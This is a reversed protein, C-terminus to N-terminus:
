NRESRMKRRPARHCHNRGSGAHLRYARGTAVVAKGAFSADAFGRAGSATITVARSDRQRAIWGLALCRNALAAGLRGAIHPRRESWDLCPRCFVRKGAAPEAGFDHLFALGRETVEGGDHALTVHGADTLADALAVGLRGALHDYCTRATRLAEGGRWTGPRPEPGAVAMVSELMQGVLPSALRFYRHRGQREVALLEAEALRALHGSATSASVHAAFALEKATLARGDMLAVLINARAPDGVLAAVSAMRTIDSMLGSYARDGGTADVCTETGASGNVGGRPRKMRCTTPQELTAALGLRESDHKSSFIAAHFADIM